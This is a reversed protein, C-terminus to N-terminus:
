QLKGRGTVPWVTEVIGNRIGYLVEHLHIIQDSYGVGLELRDGIRPEPCPANLSITAHEASFKLPKGVPLGRVSPQRETPDVSRRGADIIIRDLAPRSTVQVLLTLAPEVRAGLDIYTADGWVGGGAQVETVGPIGASVLYTGTGGGSVIDVPLGAERCAEAATVLQGVSERIAAERALPDAIDTTHGEWAMLGAFRLGDCAAIEHAITVADVPDIGARNMGVNLEVVV